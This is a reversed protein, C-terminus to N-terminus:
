SNITDLLEYWDQDTRATGMKALTGILAREVRETTQQAVCENAARLRIAALIGDMIWRQAQDSGGLWTWLAKGAYVQVDHSLNVVDHNAGKDTGRLIAYKDTLKDSAGYFVGVVIGQFRAKGVKRLEILEALSKNLNVAQGLQITWRSAKLSLLYRGDPRDVVHDINDYASASLENAARFKKSLKQAGFAEPLVKEDILKGFSTNHGGIFHGALLFDAIERPTNLGHLAQIIPVLFPNVAMSEHVDGRMKEARREIMDSVLRTVNTTVRSQSSHSM